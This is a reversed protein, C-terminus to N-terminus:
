ESKAKAIGMKVGEKYPTSGEPTFAPELPCLPVLETDGKILKYGWEWGRCFDSAGVLMTGMLVVIILIACFIGITKKM